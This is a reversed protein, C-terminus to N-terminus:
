SPFELRERLVDLVDISIEAGHHFYYKGRDRSFYIRGEPSSACQVAMEDASGAGELASVQSRTDVGSYFHMPKGSYFHTVSRICRSRDKAAGALTDVGSYFHMPKGSYFHTV